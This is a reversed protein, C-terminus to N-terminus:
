RSPDALWGGTAQVVGGDVATLWAAVASTGAITPAEPLRVRARGDRLIATTHAVAVFDHNLERGRNEGRAISSRIGTGLLAVHAQLPVEPANGAFRLQWLGPRPRHLTLNGGESPRDSRDESSALHRMAPADVYRWRRWEGGNMFVGPTYVGTSNRQALLRQRQDFKAAAFRDPWGLRDWYTVHLAVPVFRTWLGPQQRLGGLWTEAPPCSSCGESTYLEVLAVQGQGSEFRLEAAAAGHLLWLPLLFPLAAAAGSLRPPKM